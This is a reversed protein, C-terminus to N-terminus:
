RPEDYRDHVEALGHFKSRARVKEAAAGFVDLAAVGATAAFWRRTKAYGTRADAEADVVGWLTPAWAEVAEDIAGPEGLVARVGAVEGTSWINQYPPWGRERVLAARERLDAARRDRDETTPM